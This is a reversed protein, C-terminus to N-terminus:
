ERTNSVRVVSYKKTILDVACSYTGTFKSVVGFANAGEFIDVYGYTEKDIWRGGSGIKSKYTSKNNLSNRSMNQSSIACQTSVDRMFKYLEIKDSHNESGDLESMAKYVSFKADPETEPLSKLYNKAYELAKESYETNSGNIKHLELYGEYKEQYKSDDLSIIKKHLTSERNLFYVIVILIIPGLIIVALVRQWLPMDKWEKKYPKSIGCSPCKKAETSIEHKCERCKVM